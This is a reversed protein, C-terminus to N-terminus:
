GDKVSARQRVVEFTLIAAAVGANLSEAEGPMPIHVREDALSRAENGVGRAESGLILALPRIFAARTYSVGGAADALYIHPRDKTGRSFLYARMEQWALSHISLRFHAGMAARVVKPAYIDTSAPSLLVAQVGAAAATRMITGLNGPDRIEDLILIFDPDPPLPMPRIPVAAMIGQPTETDACAKLVHPAVQEVQIGRERFGAVLKQGRENLDETYFVLEPRLGAGVAEELLRVGEIAFAGAERRAKPQAQLSRLWQVKPNRISTIMDSFNLLPDSM